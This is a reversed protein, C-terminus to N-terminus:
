NIGSTFYEFNSSASSKVIREKELVTTDLLETINKKKKIIMKSIVDPYLNLQM